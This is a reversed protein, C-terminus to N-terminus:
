SESKGTASKKSSLFSEEDPLPDNLLEMVLQAGDRVGQLYMHENEMARMLHAKDEWELFTPHPLNGDGVIMAQYANREKERYKKLEPHHELQAAVHDLRRQIAQQFWPPFAM